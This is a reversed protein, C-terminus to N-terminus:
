SILSDAIDRGIELWLQGVAMLATYNQDFFNDLLWPIEFMTRYLVYIYLPASELKMDIVPIGVANPIGIHKLQQEMRDVFDFLVLGYDHLNFPIVAMLATYNQDFFNDLLWPIEFMTRYLVYIYLPASELKM